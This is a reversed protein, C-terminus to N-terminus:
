FRFAVLNFTTAIQAANATSVNSYRVTVVDAASCYADVVVGASLGSGKATIYFADATSIGSISADTTTSKTAVVTTAVVTFSTAFSRTLPVTGGGIALSGATETLSSLTGLLSLSSLVTTGALNPTNAPM